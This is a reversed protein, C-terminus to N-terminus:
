PSKTLSSLAPWRMECLVHVLKLLESLAVCGTLSPQPPVRPQQVDAAKLRDKRSDRCTQYSMLCSGADHTLIMFSKCEPHQTKYNFSM